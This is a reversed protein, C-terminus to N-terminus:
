SLRAETAYDLVSYQLFYCDQFDVFKKRLGLEKVGLQTVKYLGEGLKEM